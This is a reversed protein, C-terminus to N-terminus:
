SLATNLRGLDSAIHDKAGHTQLFEALELYSSGESQDKRLLAMASAYFRRRAGVRDFRQVCFTHYEGGFRRLESAPVEIGAQTGLKQALAERAGVDRTDDRAPVKAIWLSGNIEKFSAKPRAGGLSAGPAVLVKLWRRLAELDDIRKASIERAVTELEKLSAVPPATEDQTNRRDKGSERNMRCTQFRNVGETAARVPRIGAGLKDFM